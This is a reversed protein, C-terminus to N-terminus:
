KGEMLMGHQRIDEVDIERVEKFDCVQCAVVVQLYTIEEDLGEIQLYSGCKPCGTM